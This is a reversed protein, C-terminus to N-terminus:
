QYELTYTATASLTGPAVSQQTAIPRAYFTMAVSSQQALGYVPSQSNLALPKQQADLLQIGLGAADGASNKVVDNNEDDPTASFMVRVGSFTPGCEELNITFPAIFNGTDGISRFQNIATVGLDVEINESNVAVTCTNGIITGTVSVLVDYAVARSAFLLLLAASCYRRSIVPM